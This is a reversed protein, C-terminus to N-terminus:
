EANLRDLDAQLPAFSQSQERQMLRIKETLMTIQGTLLKKKGNARMLNAQLRFNDRKM